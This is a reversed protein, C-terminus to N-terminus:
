AQLCVRVAGCETLQGALRLAPLHDDLRVLGHLPSSARASNQAPEQATRSGAAADTRSQGEERLTATNGAGGAWAGTGEGAGAPLQQLQPCRQQDIRGHRGASGGGRRVVQRLEKLRAGRPHM